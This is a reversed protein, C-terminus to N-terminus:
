QALCVFEFEGTSSYNLYFNLYVSSSIIVDVTNLHPKSLVLDSRRIYGGEGEVGGGTTKISKWLICFGRLM